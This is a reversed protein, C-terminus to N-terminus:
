FYPWTVSFGGGGRKQRPIPQFILLVGKLVREVTELLSLSQLGYILLLLREPAAESFHSLKVSAWQCRLGM